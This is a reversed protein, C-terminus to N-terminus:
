GRGPVKVGARALAADWMVATAEAGTPRPSGLGLNPNRDARDPRSAAAAPTDQLIAIAEARSLETNFALHAALVPNRGADVCGFIAACRARERRRAKAAPSEGRAEERDSDDDGEEDKESEAKEKRAKERAHRAKKEDDSEGTDEGAAEKKACEEDKAAQEKDRKDDDNEESALPTARGLGALHAFSAASSSPARRSAVSM